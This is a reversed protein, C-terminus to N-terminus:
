VPRRSMILALVGLLVASSPEPLPRPAPHAPFVGWTLGHWNGDTALTGSIGTPSSQWAQNQDDRVWLSWSAPAFDEDPDDHVWADWGLGFVFQGLSGGFDKTHLFFDLDPDQNLTTLLDFTTVTSGSSHSVEFVVTPQTDFDIQVYSQSNGIGSQIPGIVMGGFVETSSAAYVTMTMGLCVMLKLCQVTRHM